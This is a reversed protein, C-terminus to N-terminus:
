GKVCLFNKLSSIEGNYYIGVECKEIIEVYKKPSKSTVDFSSSFCVFAISPTKSTYTCPQTTLSRIGSLSAIFSGWELSAGMGQGDSLPPLSPTTLAALVRM